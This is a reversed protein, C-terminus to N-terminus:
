NRITGIQTPCLTYFHVFLLVNSSGTPPLSAESPLLPLRMVWPFTVTVQLSEQLLFTYTFGTAQLTSRGGAAPQVGANLVKNNPPQSAAPNNRAPGKDIRPYLSQAHM